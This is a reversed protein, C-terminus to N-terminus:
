NFIGELLTPLNTNSNNITRFRDYYDDNIQHFRDAQKAESWGKKIAELADGNKDHLNLFLKSIKKKDEVSFEKNILVPGLPIEESIWLVKTLKLIFSDKAVQKYYENSGVACLDTVGDLLKTITLTHDGGYHVEKFQAEPSKIGVSGLLLRPILNGSTSGKNVFMMSLNAADGKISNISQISDNNTLLVSKYNDVADKRVKLAAIPEMFENDLSLSLYGLTNILGIDVKNSKIGKTFSAVDPYSIVEVKKNLAEELHQALPKLNEIRKNTSYTYTALKISESEKECSVHSFAFASM